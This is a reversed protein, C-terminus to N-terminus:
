LSKIITESINEVTLGNEKLLYDYDGISFNFDKIGFKLLKPHASEQALEGAVASGLGGTLFHEELTVILKAKYDIISKDLPSITHMDVVSADINKDCLFNAVKLAVNVMSGTAILQVEDGEKLVNAKGLHFDFDEIYVSPLGTGGFIRIYVPGDTKVAVQLAKVAEWADCPAIVTMGPITRMLAIDELAYHTKGLFYLSLGSSLGVLIIKKHMYGCYQRIQEFDRMSLFCSQATCIPLFGESALGASTGIMNQEAIGMNYFKDPYKFKFKDLGAPTSTDASMVIINPYKCVLEPLAVAFMSASQGFMSLLKSDMKAM